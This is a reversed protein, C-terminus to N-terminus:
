GERRKRRSAIVNIPSRMFLEFEERDKAARITAVFERFERAASEIKEREQELRSIETARWEDFAVNGTPGARKAPSASDSRSAM